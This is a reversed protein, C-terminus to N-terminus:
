PHPVPLRALGGENQTSLIRYRPTIDVQPAAEPLTPKCAEAEILPM